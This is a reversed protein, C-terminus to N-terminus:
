KDRRCSCYRKGASEMVRDGCDTCQTWGGQPSGGEVCVPCDGHRTVRSGKCTDCRHWRWAM